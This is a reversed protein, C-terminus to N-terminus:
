WARLAAPSLRKWTISSLAPTQLVLACFVGKVPQECFGHLVGEREGLISDPGPGRIVGGRSKVLAEWLTWRKYFGADDGKELNWGLYAALKGTDRGFRAQEIDAGVLAGRAIGAAVWHGSHSLSVSIEGGADMVYPAGSPDGCIHWSGDPGGFTDVLLGTLLQRSAKRQRSYDVCDANIRAIMLRALPAQGSGAEWVTKEGSILNGAVKEM